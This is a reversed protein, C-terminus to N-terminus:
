VRKAYKTATQRLEMMQDETLPRKPITHFAADKVFLVVVQDNEFYDTFSEWSYSILTGGSVIFRIVSDDFECLMPENRALTNRQNFARRLGLRYRAPLGFAVGLGLAEGWFAGSLLESNLKLISVFSVIGIIAGIPPLIWVYLFYGFAARRSVARYAKMSELFDGYTFVYECRTM